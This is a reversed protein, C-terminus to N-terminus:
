VEGANQVAREGSKDVFVWRKTASMPRCEQITVVDGIQCTDKPDHVHMRHHRRIYKKFQPHAIMREVQVIVSNKGSRRIVVGKKTKRTKPAAASM